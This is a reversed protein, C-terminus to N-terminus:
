KAVLMLAGNGAIKVVKVDDRFQCECSMYYPESTGRFEASHCYCHSEDCLGTTICDPTYSM